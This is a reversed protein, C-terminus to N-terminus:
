LLQDLLDNIRSTNGTLIKIEDILKKRQQDKAVIRLASEYEQLQSEGHRITDHVAQRSISFRDGIEALSCDDEYFLSLYERQRKTLLSGYIDLLLALEVTKHLMAESNNKARKDDKAAM